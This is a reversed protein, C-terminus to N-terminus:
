GKEVFPTVITASLGPIKALKVFERPPGSQQLGVRFTGCFHEDLLNFDRVFAPILAHSGDSMAVAITALAGIVPFAGENKEEKNRVFADFSQPDIMPGPCQEQTSPDDDVGTITVEVPGDCCNCEDCALPDNNVKTEDVLARAAAILTDVLPQLIDSTPTSNIHNNVKESFKLLKKALKKKQKKKM